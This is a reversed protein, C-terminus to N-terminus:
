GLTFVIRWTLNTYHGDALISLEKTDPDVKLTHEYTMLYRELHQDAAFKEFGANKPDILVEAAIGLKLALHERRCAEIRTDSDQPLGKLFRRGELVAPTDQAM